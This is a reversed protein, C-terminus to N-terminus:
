AFNQRQKVLTLNNKQNDAHSPSTNDFGFIIANRTIGNGFSWMGERDFAIGQGNYNFKNKVTNRELKVTATGFSCNKWPFNLTPNCPPQNNLEYVIYLNLIINVRNLIPPLFGVGGGGEGVPKEGTVKLFM